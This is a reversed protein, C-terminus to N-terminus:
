NYTHDLRGDVIAESGSM